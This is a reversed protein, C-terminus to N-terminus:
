RQCNTGSTLATNDLIPHLFFWFLKFNTTTKHFARNTPKHSNSIPVPLTKKMIAYLKERKHMLKRYDLCNGLM